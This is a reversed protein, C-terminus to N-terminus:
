EEVPEYTKEFIDPKCFYVEGKGSGIREIERLYPQVIEFFREVDMVVVPEMRSKKCILLWDTGQERNGKAQKIWSPLSWSEQWKCEISFPFRRKAEGVLRVDTGSQGIERSAIMEDKGWPIGLIQSIKECVLQQLKRGKAKASSIKIKRKKKMNMIEAGRDQVIRKGIGRIYLETGFPLDKGAAVTVGPVV